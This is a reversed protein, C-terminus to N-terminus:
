PAVDRNRSFLYFFCRFRRCFGAICGRAIIVIFIVSSLRSYGGEIRIIKPVDRHSLRISRTVARVISASADGRDRENRARSVNKKKGNAIILEGYFGGRSILLECFHLIDNM